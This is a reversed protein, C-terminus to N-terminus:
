STFLSQSESRIGAKMKRIFEECKKNLEESSLFNDYIEDDDDIRVLTLDKGGDDDEVVMSVEERLLSTMDEEKSACQEELLAVAEEGEEKSVCQEELLAVVEEEKEEKSVCQEELLMVVNKMESKQIHNIRLEETEEVINIAHGRLLTKFNGM